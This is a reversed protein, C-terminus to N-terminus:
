SRYKSSLVIDCGTRPGINVVLFSIAGLEYSRYKSSPVIEGLPIDIGEDISSSNPM